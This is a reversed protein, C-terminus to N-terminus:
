VSGRLYIFTFIFLVITWCASLSSSNNTTATQTDPGYGSSSGSNLATSGSSVGTGTSIGTGTGYIPAPTLSPTTTTTPTTPTYGPMTPTYGSSLSSSSFICTGVSPNVNTLMGAGGFDCSTPSPNRQYYTNFAYSAHAQVSNPNYCSGMPQIGTCDAGGIGCAYDLASQLVADPIGSKAVCWTQGASPMMGTGGPVTGVPTTGPMTVPPTYTPTLTPTPMIGTGTGTSTGTGTQPYPYPYTTVPNTAPTTVPNTAPVTIPTPYLNSPPITGTPMTPNTPLVTVVPPAPNTSPVTIPTTYAPNPVQGYADHSTSKLSSEALDRYYFHFALNSIQGELHVGFIKKKLLPLKFKSIDIQPIYSKIHLVLPIDLNPISTVLDVFAKDSITEILMFSGSNKIFSTIKQFYKNRSELMNAISSLSFVISVKVDSNFGSSKLSTYISKLSSLSPILSKEGGIVVIASINLSPLAAFPNTEVWKASQFPDLFIYTSVTSTPTSTGTPTFILNQVSFNKNTQLFTSTKEADDQPFGVITGSTSLLLLSLLSFLLASTAMETKSIESTNINRKEKGRHLQTQTHTHSLSLSLSLSLTPSNSLPLSFFLLPHSITVFTATRCLFVFM